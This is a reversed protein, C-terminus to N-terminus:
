ELFLTSGSPNDYVPHYGLLIESNGDPKRVSRDPRDQRDIVSEFFLPRRDLCVSKGRTDVARIRLIFPSAVKTLLAEQLAGSRSRSSFLMNKSSKPTKRKVECM